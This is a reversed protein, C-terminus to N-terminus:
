ITVGFNELPFVKQHLEMLDPNRTAATLSLWIFADGKETMDVTLPMGKLNRAATM